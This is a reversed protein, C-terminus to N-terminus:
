VEAFLPRRTIVLESIRAHHTNKMLVQVAQFGHERALAMTEPAYDYTMLFDADCASLFEFLQPHDFEHHAYLRAGARKGGATYPPDLFLVAGSLTATDLSRLVDM